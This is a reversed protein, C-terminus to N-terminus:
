ACLWQPAMPSRCRYARVLDPLEVAPHGFTMRYFLEGYEAQTAEDWMGERHGGTIPVGSSPPLFETIYLPYGLEGVEDYAEQIQQPSYWYRGEDPEHAQIGLASVPTGRGQLERVLAIFRQRREAPRAPDSSVLIMYENLLRVSNPNAEQAWVFSDHVYPVIRELRSMERGKAKM